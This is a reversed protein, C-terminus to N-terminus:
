ARHIKYWRRLSNGLWGTTIGVLFIALYIVVRSAEIQWILFDIQVVESNQLVFAGMFVMLAIFVAIKVSM